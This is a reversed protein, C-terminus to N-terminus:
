GGVPYTNIQWNKHAVPCASGLNTINWQIFANHNNKWTITVDGVCHESGGFLDFRGNFTDGVLCGETKPSFIKITGTFPPKDNGFVTQVSNLSSKGFCIQNLNTIQTLNSQSRWILISLGSPSTVSKNNTAEQQQKLQRQQKELQEQQQELQRQQKELQEQQQKLQQQRKEELHKQEQQIGLFVQQQIRLFVLLIIAIAGGVLWKGGHNPKIPQSPQSLPPVLPKTPPTVSHQQNTPTVPPTVQSKLSPQQAAIPEDLKKDAKNREEIRGQPAQQQPLKGLVLAWTEVAYRAAQETLGLDNQMQKVLRGLLLEIPVQSSSSLDKAVGQKLASVLLFIEQKYQGCFDRLLAECRQPEDCLSQGYQTIIEKLKQRPLDNM